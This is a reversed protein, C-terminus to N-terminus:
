TGAKVNDTLQKRLTKWGLPRESIGHSDLIKEVEIMADLRTKSNAVSGAPRLAAMADDYADMWRAAQRAGPTDITGRLLRDRALFSEAFSEFKNKSGYTSGNLTMEKQARKFLFENFVGTSNMSNPLHAGGIAPAAGTKGILFSTHISLGDYIHGFEHIMLDFPTEYFSWGRSFGGRTQKEWTAYDRAWKPNVGIIGRGTHAMSEYAHAYTNSGWKTYAPVRLSPVSVSQSGVYTMRAWQDPYTAAVHDAWDAIMDVSRPDWTDIDDAWHVHKHTRQLHARGEAATKFPPRKPAAAKKKPAAKKAPAKKKVPKKKPEPTPTQLNPTSVPPTPSPPKPDAVPKKREVISGDRRADGEFYYLTTCRCQIVEKAPAGPQRTFMLQSAGVDFPQDFPRVQGDADRHSKRTRNGGTALWEKEVPGHEGLASMGDYDGQSYAMGVETRAVVDARFESFGAVQQIGNKLEENSAGSEIAKQTKTRIMNYVTEGVGVVRNTSTAAYNVAQQNVVKAWGQVEDPSLNDTTSAYTYAGIAGSMYLRELEPVLDTNVVVKWRPVISEFVFTDGAASLADLDLTAIFDEYAERVITTLRQALLDALAQEQEILWAEVDARNHPDPLESLSPSVVM